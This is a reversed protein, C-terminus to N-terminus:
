VTLNVQVTAAPAESPHTGHSQVLWCHVAPRNFWTSRHSVELRLLINFFRLWGSGCDKTKEGKKQVLATIKDVGTSQSRQSTKIANENSGLSHYNATAAPRSEPPSLSSHLSSSWSRATYTHYCSTFTFLFLKAEEPEPTLPVEGQGIICSISSSVWQWYCVFCVSVAECTIQCKKLTRETKKLFGMPLLKFM